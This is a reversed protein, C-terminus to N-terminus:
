QNGGKKQQGEPAKYRFTTAQATVELGGEEELGSATRKLGIDTVNVIRTMRGIYYFFNALEDFTGRLEMSVPIEIYYQRPVEEERQFTRIELGATKAQNHIRQLLSPIEASAPLKERAILLEQQLDAIKQSMKEQNRKLQELRQKEQELDNLQNNAQDIDEQIPTYVVMWFGVAILVMVLIFVLVKQGLPVSNFKDIFDEM